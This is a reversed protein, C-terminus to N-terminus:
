IRPEKLIWEGKEDKKFIDTNVFGDRIRDFENDSIGLYNCFEKKHEIKGDREKVIKLGEERKINGNRIYINVQDTARGYGFKIWKLHERIGIFKMDINEYSVWSGAQPKSLEKWGLNKALEANKATDWKFFYGYFLGTVGVRKIEEDSPYILCKLDSLKIDGDVMDEERFGRMGSFEQRWRKDLVKRERDAAPGGYELQSNEGWIILPINFAVAIKVPVTFIGVHNVWYPDGVIEFGKKVLKRIIKPNMTFHIHDVGIEKLIELNYKSEPTSDFQDFTVALPNMKHIVKMVYTQFVSDKGGSVPVICDYKSGDKSRYKEIIEKFEKERSSWDIGEQHNHKKKASRCADCIGEEDFYIDPKTDPFLCSKCYRM